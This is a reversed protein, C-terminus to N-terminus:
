AAGATCTCSPHFPPLPDVGAVAEGAFEQCYGCEGVDIELKSGHGAGDVIGRSSAQRGITATNMSAWAGLTWFSGSRDVHATVAEDGLRDLNDPTISPIVRRVNAEVTRVGRDLKLHLSRALDDVKAKSRAPRARVGASSATERASKYATEVPGRFDERRLSALLDLAENLNTRRRVSEVSQVVLARIRREAYSFRESLARLDAEGSPPEPM